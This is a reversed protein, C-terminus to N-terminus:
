GAIYFIGSFGIKGDRNKGRSRKALGVVSKEGERAALPVEGVAPM